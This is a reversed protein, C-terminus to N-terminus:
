HFRANHLWFFFLRAHMPGSDLTAVQLYWLYGHCVPSETKTKKKEKIGKVRRDEIWCTQQNKMKKSERM